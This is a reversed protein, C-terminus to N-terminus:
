VYVGMYVANVAYNFSIYFEARALIIITIGGGGSGAFVAGCYTRSVFANYWSRYGPVFSVITTIVNPVFFLM